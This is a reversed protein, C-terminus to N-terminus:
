EVTFEVTVYDEQYGTIYYTAVYDNGDYGTRMNGSLVGQEPQLRISATNDTSTFYGDSQLAQLWQEAIYADGTANPHVLDAQMMSNEFGSYVDVLAVKDGREARYQLMAGLEPRMLDINSNVQEDLLWPILNAVYVSAHPAAELIEDIMQSIRAVTGTAIGTVRDFSGPLEGRNIDNSGIHLLVVGPQDARVNEYIRSRDNGQELWDIVRWGSRGEHNSNTVSCDSAVGTGMGLRGIFEVLNNELMESLPTRYSCSGSGRTISDGIPLLKVARDSAPPEIAQAPTSAEDALVDVEPQSQTTQASGAVGIVAEGGCAALGLGLVSILYVKGLRGPM